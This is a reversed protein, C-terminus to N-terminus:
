APPHMEIRSSGFYGGALKFVIQRLSGRKVAENFDKETTERDQENHPNLIFDKVRSEVLELHVNLKLFEATIEPHLEYVREAAAKKEAEGIIPVTLIPETKDTTPFIMMECKAAGGGVLWDGVAESILEKTKNILPVANAVVKLSEAKLEPHMEYVRDVAEQMKADSIKLETM